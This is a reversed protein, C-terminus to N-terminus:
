SQSVTDFTHRMVFPQETQSNLARYLLTHKQVLIIKNSSRHFTNHLHYISIYTTGKYFLTWNTCCMLSRNLHQWTIPFHSLMGDDKGSCLQGLIDIFVREVKKCFLCLLSIVLYLLMAAEIHTHKCTHTIVCQCDLVQYNGSSAWHFLLSLACLILGGHKNIIVALRNAAIQILLKHTHTQTSTHAHRNHM